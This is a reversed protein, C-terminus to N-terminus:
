PEARILFHGHFPLLQPSETPTEMTQPTWIPTAAADKLFYGTYETAGPLFDGNWFRLRDAMEPTAGSRLGNVPAPLSTPWGSGILHTGAEVPLPLPTMRLEGVFPLLLATDRTQVLLAEHPALPRANMSLVDDTWRGDLPLLSSYASTAPDFLQLRDESGFAEPPLLEALTWHTRVAIRAGVISAPLDQALAVVNGASAAADIEFHRGSLSGELVELYHSGAPLALSAPLAVERGVVGAVRGTFLAPQVLPMSFTRTGPPFLQRSWAFITSFASAEPQADRNTDLDVRIRLFGTSASAFLASKDIGTYRRSVTGDANFTAAAPLTLRAWAEDSPQKAAEITVLIDDQPAAPRIIDLVILSTAPDTGIRIRGTGLGSLPDTGLAYELLNAAGDADPDDLPGGIDALASWQALTMPKAKEAELGEASSLVRQTRSGLAFGTGASSIFGLDRTLDVRDDEDDDFGGDAGSEAAGVPAFGPRLLFVGTSAGNVSPDDNFILDQGADDDGLSVAAMPLLGDLPLGAAFQSAPVHLFYRGTNINDILYRGKSDSIAAGVAEDVGPTANEAYLLVLVDEIREGPNLVGDGNIDLFVYNGVAASAWLGFDITLNTDPNADGDTISETGGALTIVPSYLPTGPGGPQSGDNNNNIDDDLLSPVGGTRQYPKPPTVKVYYKGPPVSTFLYSGSSTTIIDSAAQIDAATGSGGIANDDGTAFLQVLAGEVGPEDTDLVGNNNFDDFVMNGIALARVELTYQVLAACGYNDQARVTFNFTGIVSPVGSILGSSDLVLGTPLAGLDIMFSYPASGGSATLTQTYGGGFYAVPLTAPTVSIVPCLPTLSYSRTGSCGNADTARLTITSAASSTPTGSIVGSSSNLSLGAPLTGNIISFDYPAAGGSASVTQSYPTGVTSTALSAPNLSVVPCIQLSISQTGQCGYTDNVRVTFSAAPSTPAAPTGSIVGTSANLSLGAPLSGSTITWSHHPATGGSATLTRSYATGVTGQILSAPTISVAPCVPTLSYSRTATCSYADTATITFDALADSSPTGSILGSASDLSLGTPLSGSSVSFLIPTHMGTHSLTQSWATGVTASPLVAPHISFPVCSIVAMHDEVEGLGGGGGFSGPDPAATLRFRTGRVGPVTTVPINFTIERVVGNSGHPILINTAIQEGPDDFLGNDNYDIWANLYGPAGTNNTVVVSASGVTGPLMVPMTVGDEDDSGTIDDGTATANKTPAYETDALAGMRLDSSALNWADPARDWDGFDTLPVSINAVHDEVEGTGAHGTPGPSPVSTLRFRTGLSAGTAANAPIILSLNIVADATGAPVLVNTAIQEGPDAVSQNNNFDFWANLYAPGATLNTVTVAITAPAGAIMAPMMVGDEDDVGTNDDGSASANRTSVYETDVLAGMRLATDATSSADPLGSWDGYDLLPPSINTIYDEVEGTGAHGTPGAEAVSTLRFRLGLESGTVATAPVTFVLNQTANDTGAPVLVDAAVQEGPDTLSGNNNFDIWANLYAPQGTSNTVIVPVTAPAGATLSPLVVGDEDALGTIDDGTATLNTTPAFETDVLAGMRLATSATSSASAFRSYDGFDTTPAAISMAYDEVEGLGGGSGTSGPSSGSTLRFRMGTNVGTVANAPVNVVPNLILRNSGSPVGLNNIVQEGPDDFSGNNNFDIWANLYAGEGTENTVTVPVPFSGGAVFAPLIVGDEDDLDTIDDGTATANLVPTFEADVLEGMFLDESVGNSAIPAGSWDGYDNTASNIAVAYDEVEGIGSHGTPGTTASNTLRFRVARGSGPSVNLPVTFSVQPVADFPVGAGWPSLYQGDIVVPGSNTGPLEWAAAMSDGGGGEKMIGEIYYPRGAQLQIKVSRQESYKTWQLYSTWGPVRAILTANEVTADSSLHLQTEDDGSVWFTYEGTVPPHVWGRMRQGMNDAWDVPTTFNTRHDYSTPNNPYNPHSTLSSVSTGSIGTWYERLISGTSSAPILRAPELREGGLSVPADNLVGDNNFDIWAHLWANAGTTNKVTVPLTVLTGPDLSSPLIVGDEDDVGTTDDGTASANTTPAFEADVLTGMFLGPNVTSSASALGSHDGFDTTPAAINIVYDEIEGALPNNGTPGLGSPASLRFRAGINTGTVANTPVVVTLETVEDLTGSPIVINTAIQEGADTLVGNNNFDIWANLYGNAGTENSITVPIVVTQGATMPPLVVGDEDDVGTIDDGTATANRTSSFEADLLAGMRLAPNVGQSADAFGSFDGFDTTPPQITVLHDEVEGNGSAGTPGPNSTSTLRFRTGLSVGTLASPAVTINLNRTANATGSAILVNTAVQEGPDTLVGNGNFDIWANLYAATGTTNTVVVPIVAPAGATLSPFVVGDEDDVGTTDDGTATANTTPSFETDVLAGLRLNMNAISSAHAFGSFDGFDTTPVAINAVYDEVEGVGGAGASGPSINSTLRVRVGLNVGTVAAAPVTYNINRTASNTGNAVIINTAVQEGPDTFVGNNNFDIWANLYGTAGTNNTVITAMTAPAGATMAPVTVGDEDDVGTEDDGTATANRTSAYETDVLAGLRLNTSATNSVEPAGSFDGFDTLPALIVVLHDEVEGEGAHGTSGPNQVDTIRFRTGLSTAATVANTPVVFELNIVGGDTGPPVLVNNAIQEGADTLVGNNNFDIWANLYGNAATLNTVSVPLVVPQGATLTPFTVGDEDDTGHLDDGDANPTKMAMGEKDVLAGLRLNTNVTSSADAFGSYDGFDTNPVIISTLHDEVEGIGDLGAPGPSIVSTLRVRIGATGLSAGAPVTFNIVRNSNNTNNSIAINSAIQEGADSLSGNRNFDIWANLYATSGITNTVNVTISSAAGQAVEVPVIVGDEDDVGNIDDATADANSELGGEADVLAGIRLNSNVKSSASPFLSYDGFDTNAVINVMHDEVEGIGKQGYPGPSSTSTLRTRVGVWGTKVVAPVTFTINRNSNSTSNSVTLNSAIQEGADTLDGNGNFDVWVNLYATSGISNTVNVTLSTSTGQTISAPVTVGDEDDSGHLDDGTATDNTMAQGEIDVSAGIRLRSNVTSSAHQFLSYDGYDLTAAAIAVVYDEVEGMGGAGTPGPNPASTLRFRVGRGSGVSANTPIEVTLSQEQGVTGHPIVVNVAVHEGSNTLNGDNNFDIWANLYAAAGTTNTVTVPITVSGGAIISSPMVVGDEDDVGTNDDGTASSNTTASVEADILDGMKLANNVTNSATAFGSFDGFDTNPAPTMSYARTAVCGTADTVALTFSAAAPSTPTGSVEGSQTNLSLGVPLAGSAVSFTHPATGGSVSLSQSYPTGVTGNAMSSPNLTIPQCAITTVYDEVEGNGSPGVPGPSSTSTLRVRVGAVGASANAPVTFNVTRNSNSTGNGIITNVAIQEGSDTLVGNRNFDIWVNLYAAAGSTNTVNVTLSGAVGQTITAPLTVGDEDDLYTSDDGTATSNTTATHETDTIAGIRLGSIVTSSADAFGSFDGFDTTAPIFIGADLYSISDCPTMTFPPSLGLIPDADSDRGGNEGQHQSTFVYGSPLVFEVYYDGPAVATFNYIGNPGTTTTAVTALTVANLLRVTVGSVGPEDEDQIGNRNVDNWVFDGVLGASTPNDSFPKDSMGFFKCDAGNISLRFGFIPSTTGFITQRIVTLFYPQDTRYSSVYGTNWDHTGRVQVTRSGSIINGTADLPQLQIHSNGFREQLVIYDEGTFAYNFRIDYEGINDPEGEGRDDVIYHNLNTNTAIQAASNLFNTLGSSAISTHTGNLHVGFNTSNAPVTVNTVMGGNLNAVDLTKLTGNDNITLTKLDIVSNTQAFVTTGSLDSTQNRTSGNVLYQAAQIPVNNTSSGGVVHIVQGPAVVQLTYSRSVPCGNADTATVTFTRTELSSPTGSLVGTSSNLSLGAPLTGSVSFVYPGNGGLASVKLSYAANQTATPLYSVAPCVVILPCVRVTYDEVEGIGSAGTPGPSSTSTLRVRVGRPEGSLSTPPTFNIVRNANASGSAIVVNAAVQEGPDTLVGNGNFDIWANLYATSGTTNTVNVTMSSASGPMLSTPLTVGDEDDSGTIDDGTATSNRTSAIEADVLAGIRLNSNVTSSADAFGSYDGFDTTAPTIEVIYDEVEGTGSSGTPGPNSTSTIRFRAGVTGILAGAPVNFSYNQITGNTGNAVSQNVIIQEGPDTLVGNGNFDIWANLYATAGSTNLRKIAVSASTGAVLTQPLTVGDEDDIDDIDDGNATPSTRAATETDCENGLRITTSWNSSASAFGSYDGFDQTAPSMDTFAVAHPGNLSTTITRVAAGTPSYVHLESEGYDVVYLNGDPGWKIGTFPNSGSDMNVFTTRTRSPFSIADVRGTSGNNNRVNVYLREDPGWALGRPFEGSPWTAITSLFSGSANYLRLTGGSTNQTVYMQGATDFVFGAPNTTSLVTGLVAGTTQNFRLVNGANQNAIYISGDSGVAMQYPFNLGSGSSVLTGLSAGTFPNYRTITNSSGNAVLFTNDSLRYGYNPASLGSPSWTALHAGTGGNFRSITNNNYNVVVLAFQPAVTLLHDEVEGVGDAGDPGPSSVSTLRVRVGVTGPVAGAPVTFNINRNSNSTNNSITTNSAVQEGSDTLVGNNNWDIWVNLYATSGISNTVNVVMSGTAGQVVSVPLTVGDEDDVGTIDDGTAMLNTTASSEADVLAGIRLNNNVTSSASPFRSYDGFDSTQGFGLGPLSLFVLSALLFFSRRFGHFSFVVGEVWAPAHVSLDARGLIASRASSPRCNGLQLHM